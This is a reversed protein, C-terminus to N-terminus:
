GNPEACVQRDVQRPDNIRCDAPGIRRDRYWFLVNGPRIGDDAGLSLEVLGTKEGLVIGDMIPLREPSTKVGITKETEKLEDGGPLKRKRLTFKLQVPRGIRCDVVLGDTEVAEYGPPISRLGVGVRHEGEELLARLKGDSDTLPPPAWITGTEPDWSQFAPLNRSQPENPALQEWFDVYAIGEGTEADVVTVDIAAAPRLRFVLPKQRPETGVEFGVPVPNLIHPTSFYATGRVPSLDIKHQGPPLRLTVRGQEDTSGKDGLGSQDYTRVLVKAAPLGTDGFLIHFPVDLPRPFILKLDGILIEPSRPDVPQPADTTAAWIERTPGNTTRVRIRFRCEAPLDDFEFRGDDDTERIRMEAPVLGPSLLANSIAEFHESWAFHGSSLRQCGWIILEVGKLPAGRDDVVQGSLRASAPFTLDLEIKDGPLYRENPKPIPETTRSQLNEAPAHLFLSRRPTWAFGLGEKRGFVQFTCHEAEGISGFRAIPLLANRFEYRGQADTVTKGFIRNAKVLSALYIVADAVPNGDQDLARGSLSVPETADRPPADPATPKEDSAEQPEDALALERGGRQHDATAKAGPAAPKSAAPEGSSNLRPLVVVALAFLLAFSARSLRLPIAGRRNVLRM